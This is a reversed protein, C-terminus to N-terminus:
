YGTMYYDPLRKSITDDFEPSAIIVPGAPDPPVENWYGVNQFDRLYWPLPWYYNDVSFVKIVMSRGMGPVRSVQQVRKALRLIDPIPQAYVYPNRTDTEAVFCARYAQAGLQACGALLLLGAALQVFRWRAARIIAEAGVGALLALPMLINLVCWPTKYPIASYVVTIAIFYFALFRHLGSPWDGERRLLAAITKEPMLAVVCGALGLGAILGESWIAGGGRHSWFLMRLYYSWPERHIATSKARRLWPSFARFIDIAGRPNSFFGTLFLAATICGLLIAVLAATKAVHVPNLRRDVLRRWLASAPAAVAAAAFALVSTEKTALMLGAFVGCAALWKASGNRRWRWGCGIAVLNFLALLTEQIYYRSYFVFAPSLTLFVAALLAAEPVLGESLLAPALVICAGAVVTVIRFDAENTDALRHKGTLWVVPLTLYYLTPGHFENPDYRYLGTKWLIRFKFAHVAEDGHMPRNSLHPLRFALAAVWLLLAAAIAAARRNPAASRRTSRGLPSTPSM